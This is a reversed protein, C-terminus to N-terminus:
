ATVTDNALDDLEEEDIYPGPRNLVALVGALILPGTWFFQVLAGVSVILPLLGGIIFLLGGIRGRKKVNLAGALGIFPSVAWGLLFVAAWPSLSGGTESMSGNLVGVILFEFILSFFGLVTGIAGILLPLERAM